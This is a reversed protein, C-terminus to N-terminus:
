MTGSAATPTDAAPAAPPEFHFTQQFRALVPRGKHTPPEFRWESLAALASASFYAHDTSAVTPMRVAGTEDVFFSLTVKGSLGQGVWERPYIPQTVNLSAPIRDLTRPGHVRYAFGEYDKEQFPIASSTRDTVLVGSVEFRVTLECRTPAPVGDARAPEYTWRKIANLTATLFAEHTYALPLTDTVVGTEDIEIMVRVEGRSVGEALLAAPYVVNETRNIKASVVNPQTPNAAASALPLVPAAVLLAALFRLNM